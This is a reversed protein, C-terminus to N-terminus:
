SCLVRYSFDYQVCSVIKYFSVTTGCLTSIDDLSLWLTFRDFDFDDEFLDLSIIKDGSTPIFTTVKEVIAQSCM